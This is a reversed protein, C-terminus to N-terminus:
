QFDALTDDCSAVLFTNCSSPYFLIASTTQPYIFKKPLLFIEMLTSRYMHHKFIYLNKSECLLCSGESM